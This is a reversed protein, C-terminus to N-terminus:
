GAVERAFWSGSRYRAIQWRAHERLVAVARCACGVYDDFSDCLSISGFGDYAEPAGTHVLLYGPSADIVSWESRPIQLADLAAVVGLAEWGVLVPGVCGDELEWHADHFAHCLAVGTPPPAEGALASGLDTLRIQVMVPLNHPVM